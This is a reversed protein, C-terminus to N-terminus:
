PQKGLNIGNLHLEGLFAQICVIRRCKKKLHCSQLSL